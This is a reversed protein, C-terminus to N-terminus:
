LSFACSLSTISLSNDPSTSISSSSFSASLLILISALLSPEVGPPLFGQFEPSVPSVPEVPLSESSSLGEKV